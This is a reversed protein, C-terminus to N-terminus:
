KTEGKKARRRACEEHWAKLQKVGRKYEMTTHDGPGAEHMGASHSVREIYHIPKM